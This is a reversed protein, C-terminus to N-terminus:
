RKAGAQRLLRIMNPHGLKRAVSLATDGNRTTLTVDAGRQLLLSFAKDNHEFVTWMLATHGESDTANIDAGGDLLTKIVDIDNVARILATRRSYGWELKEVPFSFGGTDSDKENPDIGKKLFAKVLTMSGSNVAYPFATNGQRNKHYINAGHDLLLLATDVKGHRIALTLLSDGYKDVVNVDAGKDLLAKIVAPNEPSIRYYDMPVGRLSVQGAPRPSLAVLLASPPIGRAVTDNGRRPWLLQWFPRQQSPWDRANADAGEALLSLATQVDDRKLAAILARDLQNQRYARYTLWAPIALLIALLVFLATRRKTKTLRM